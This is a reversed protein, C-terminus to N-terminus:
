RDRVPLTARPDDIRSVATPDTEISMDPGPGSILEDNAPNPTLYGVVFGAIACLLVIPLWHGASPVFIRLIAFAFVIVVGLGLGPWLFRLGRRFRNEHLKGRALALFAGAFLLATFVTVEIAFLGFLSTVRGRVDATFRESAIVHRNPDLLRVSAPILGDGQGNLPALDLNYQQSVTSGPAVQLGTETEFDFFTIGLASGSLAVSNVTVTSAGNNTVTVGVLAPATPNLKVPNSGSSNAVSHGNVTFTATVTGAAQAASGMWTLAGVGLLMAVAVLRAM